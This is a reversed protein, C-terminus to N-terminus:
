WPRCARSSATPRTSPGACASLLGGMTSSVDTDITSASAASALVRTCTTCMDLGRDASSTTSAATRSLVDGALGARRVEEQRALREGGMAAERLAFGGSRSGASTSDRQIWTRSPTTSTIAAIMRREEVLLFGLPRSCRGARRSTRGRPAAASMSVRARSPRSVRSRTTCSVESRAASIKPRRRFAVDCRARVGVKGEHVEVRCPRVCVRASVRDRPVHPHEVAQPEPWPRTSTRARTRHEVVALDDSTRGRGTRGARRTLGAAGRQVWM